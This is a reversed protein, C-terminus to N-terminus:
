GITPRSYATHDDIPMTINDTPRDMQRNTLRHRQASHSFSVDYLLLTWVLSNSTGGLFVVNCSEVRQVLGM